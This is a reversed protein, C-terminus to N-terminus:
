DEYRDNRQKTITQEVANIFKAYAQGAENSYDQGAYVLPEFRLNLCLMGHFAYREDLLPKLTAFLEDDSLEGALLKPLLDWLGEVLDSSVPGLGEYYGVRELEQRLTDAVWFLKEKTDDGRAKATVLSRDFFARQEFPENDWTTEKNAQAILYKFVEEHMLGYQLPVPNGSSSMSFLRHEHAVNWAEDWVPILEEFFSPEATNFANLPSYYTRAKLFAALSPCCKELSAKFDFPVDHCSNEGQAVVPTERWLHAAWSLLRRRTVPNDILKVQGYDDYEAEMFGIVPKWYAVPYCTSCTTGYVKFEKDGHALAVPSYTQRRTLTVVRCRDGSAIIQQSAFCSANFSGM